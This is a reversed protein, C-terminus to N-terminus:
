AKNRGAFKLPTLEIISRYHYQKGSSLSSLVFLAYIELYGRRFTLFKILYKELYREEKEFHSGDTLV